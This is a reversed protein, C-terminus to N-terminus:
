TNDRDRDVHLTHDLVKPHTDGFAETMRPVIQPLCGSLQKPACYAM